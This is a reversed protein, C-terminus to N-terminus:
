EAAEPENSFTQGMMIATLEGSPGEPILPKGGMYHYLAHVTYITETLSEDIGVYGYYRPISKQGKLALRSRSGGGVPVYRGTSKSIKGAGRVDKLDHFQM